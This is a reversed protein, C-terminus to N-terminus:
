LVLKKVSDRIVLHPQFVATSPLKKQYVHNLLLDATAIAMDTLPFHITSLRPTLYQGLENNDFGIISVQQPVPINCQRCAELAGLAMLDNGCAVATIYPEKDLIKLMLQTGSTISYDGQYHNKSKPLQYEKLATQHGLFRETADEKHIPGSLYALQRHGNELLHKTALYGGFQNNLLTAKAQSHRFPQNLTFIPCIQDIRAFDEAVLHGTMLILADVQRNILFNVAELEGEYSNHGSAIIVQKDFARLRSEASGAAVGFYGAGLDSLVMGITHSQKSALSRAAQNPTYHLTKIAQLVKNRTASKVPAGGAVVRSVTALSVGALLAVDKITAM